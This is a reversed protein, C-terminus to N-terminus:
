QEFYERIQEQLLEQDQLSEFGFTAIIWILFLLYILSLIIGIIALVKGITINSYNDYGQPNQKYLKTANMALFLAVGGAIMGVGWFCCSIISIVGLVIILVDNPLKRSEM